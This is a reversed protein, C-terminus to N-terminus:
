PAESFLMATLAYDVVLIMISSIVVSRTTARGVGEAGGETYFGQYCCVVAIISGFVM